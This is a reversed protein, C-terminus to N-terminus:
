IKSNLEPNLGSAPRNLATEIRYIRSAVKLDELPDYELGRKLISARFDTLQFKVQLDDVVRQVDFDKCSFIDIHIFAKEVFTHLSIHSEAIMVFGSVGWDEPRSGVYRMVVPGSIKNMGIIPPYSELFQQIYEEDQFLRPSGYGDIALHM